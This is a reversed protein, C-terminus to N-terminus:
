SPFATRFLQRPLACSVGLVSPCPPASAPQACSAEIQGECTFNNKLLQEFLKRLADLHEARWLASHTKSLVYDAALSGLNAASRPVPLTQWALM